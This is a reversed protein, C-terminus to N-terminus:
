SSAMSSALSFPMLIGPTVIWWFYNPNLCQFVPIISYHYNLLLLFGTCKKKELGM